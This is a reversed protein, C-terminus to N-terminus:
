YALSRTIIRQVPVGQEEAFRLFAVEIESPTALAYCEPECGYSAPVELVAHEFFMGDGWKSTVRQENLVGAHKPLEDRLYIVIKQGPATCDTPRLVGQRILHSIFAANAFVNPSRHQAIRLYKQSEHLGLAFAFCNYRGPQAPHVERISHTFESRLAAIQLPWDSGSDAIEQLRTRLPASM